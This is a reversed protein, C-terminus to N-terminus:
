LKLLMKVRNYKTENHDNHTHITCSYMTCAHFHAPSHVWTSAHLLLFLANTDGNKMRQRTAMLCPRESFELRRCSRCFSRCFSVPWFTRMIWRDGAGTILSCVCTQVQVYATSRVHTSSILKWTKTSAPGDRQGAKSCENMMNIDEIEKWINM